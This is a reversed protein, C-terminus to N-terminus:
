SADDGLGSEKILCIQLCTRALINDYFNGYQGKAFFCSFNGKRKLYLVYRFRLKKMRTPDRDPM